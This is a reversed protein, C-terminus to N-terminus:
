LRVEEARFPRVLVRKWKVRQFLRLPQARADQGNELVGVPIRLQYLLARIEYDNTSSGRADLHRSCQGVHDCEGHRRFVGVECHFVCADKQDFIRLVKQRRKRRLGMVIGGLNEL